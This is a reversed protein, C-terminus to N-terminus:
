GSRVASAVQYLAQNVRALYVVLRTESIPNEGAEPKITQELLSEQNAAAFLDTLLRVESAQKRRLLNIIAEINQRIREQIAAILGATEATLSPILGSNIDQTMHTLDIKLSQLITNLQLLPNQARAMPNYELAMSPFTQELQTFTNNMNVVITDPNVAPEQGTVKTLYGAVYQDLMFLFSGLALRFRDQTRVPLIFVVVLAAVAAGIFTDLPRVVLIDSVSNGALGVFLLTVAINIWLIMWIYSTDVFYAALFLCVAVLAIIPSTASSLHSLLLFILIGALVGGVTGAVRFSMRRLSEGTSGAIVVFATWFVWNSHDLSLFYAILMAILAALSAQLGLKTTIHLRGSQATRSQVLGRVNPTPTSAKVAATGQAPLGSPPSIGRNFEIDRADQVALNLQSGGAILRLLPLTWDGAARDESGSRISERLRGTQKELNEVSRPDATKFLVKQFDALSSILVERIQIPIRDWFTILAPSSDVMLSLGQDANYFDVRLRNLREQTWVPPSLAGIESEIVKRSQSIQKLQRNVQKLIDASQPPNRLAQMIEGVIRSAQRYYTTNARRLLRAPSYRLLVFQWLFVSFIGTAAALLFWPLIAFTIKLLSAFYFTIVALLVLEMYRPGFRRFYYSLFFLVLLILGYLWTIVPLLTFSALIIFVPIVSLLLNNRRDTPRLDNILLSSILALVPAFLVLSLYVQASLQGAFAQLIERIILWATLFSLIAMGAKELRVLGPDFEAIRLYIAAFYRKM